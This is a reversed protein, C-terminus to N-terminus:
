VFRVNTGYVLPDVQVSVPSKFATSDSNPAFPVVDDAKAKPPSPTEELVSSHVFFAGTPANELPGLIFVALALM